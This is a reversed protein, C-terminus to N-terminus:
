VTRNQSKEFTGTNAPAIAITPNLRSSSMLGAFGVTQGPIKLNRIGSHLIKLPSRKLIM